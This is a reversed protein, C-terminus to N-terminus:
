WEGWAAAADAFGDVQIAHAEFKLNLGKLAAAQENTLTSPITITKFLVYDEGAKAVEKLRFEIKRTTEAPDAWEWPQEEWIDEVTFFPAFGQNAFFTDLETQKDMTMIIRVYSDESEEDVHVTPDKVYTHGPLLKYSNGEETREPTELPEGDEGLKEEDLTIKVQGLTFTNTVKETTSTLYAMTALFTGSVLLIAVLLLGIMKKHKRM